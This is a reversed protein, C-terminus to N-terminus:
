RKRVASVGVSSAADWNRRYTTENKLFDDLMALSDNGWFICGDLKISPVGFVGDKTAEETFVRLQSKVDDSDLPRLLKCEGILAQYRGEDTPDEGGVWVHRFIQRCVERSPSGDISTALALRLLPLPNFPHVRPLDLDIKEQQALWLSQAFTWERKGPIEAPGLQGFHKLLGAFLVPRYTVQLEQGEIIKPLREFALYAYPSIFDLYFILSKKAM